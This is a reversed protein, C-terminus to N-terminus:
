LTRASEVVPVSLRVSISTRFMPPMEFASNVMEGPTVSIEPSFADFM